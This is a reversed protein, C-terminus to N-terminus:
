IIPQIHALDDAIKIDVHGVTSPEITAVLEWGSGTGRDVSITNNAANVQVHNAKQDNAIGSLLDSLDVVDQGFVYDKITDSNAAGAESFVFTDNGTGGTLTDHGLGGWLIDDGENGTLIDNGGGGILLDNGQGGSLTDALNGGFLVDNGNGGSRTNSAGLEGALFDNGGTSSNNSTGIQYDGTGLNYGKYTAGDFNILEVRDDTAKFHDQVTISQDNFEIVLSGKNNGVVNDYATLSTLEKGAAAIVIRDTGSGENITDHGDTLGFVYTDNGSDDTLLDDGAGGYIKDDGSGAYIKDNGADGYLVDNGSQGYIIDNGAGGLVIDDQSGADIYDDGDEGLIVDDGDEGYILDGGAGGAVFDSQSGGNLYDDGAGGYLADQNQNGEIQNNGANGILVDVGSQGFLAQGGNQGPLIMENDRENGFTTSTANDALATLAVYTFATTGNPATAIVKIIYADADSPSPNGTIVNGNRSLWSWKGNLQNGSTTDEDVRVKEFSYTTGPATGVFLTAMDLTISTPKGAPAANNSFAYFASSNAIGVPGEQIDKVAIAFDSTSIGGHGDSAQVTITHQTTTEYDLVAGAKVTVVGTNQDITFRGNADNTLSYTVTADDVDTSHATLGVVTGATANEAVENLANNTDVPASPADNVPTVTLNVTTVATSIVGDNAKYTFSDPGNYNASPTYTFTGDPNLALTGHAPGSVLIASLISDPDTDNALVGGANATLVQDEAVTYSDALAIPADNVPTVNVIFPQPVPASGDQNGDEVAVSFGANGESGNHVFTIFGSALETATFSTAPTGNNRIEGGNLASVRFVIASATNDPDTFGLAATTLTVVGGEVVTSSLSGALAPADNLPIVKIDVIQAASNDHGDNVIVEVSHGTAAPNDNGNLYTVGRLITQYTAVSATGTVTLVGLASNYTVTLGTAAAQAQPNLSLAEDVGNPRGTFRVTLSNLTSSDVDSLTAANLIYQPLQEVATASANNGADAGNLDVVPADNVPTVDIVFPKPIPVSGDQNGDEVAVSFGALSPESGNHVFTIIGSALEAATFSTAPVGNNRVEGGNLATIRFVVGSPTNDPDTYGLEAVTLTVMGGEVVTSHLTGGLVPADNLPIVKIDVTHSVSNDLGDNVIVEVSHGTVTPDDSNNVYSVGRLITQYTSASAAGTIRLSGLAPDYTVTLGAAAAQAAPNLSLVELTGDPRGVFRVTMSAMQSSDVDSLTAATLIYQPFQEVATASANSGADVGNLDVVPLDNTGILKIEVDHSVNGGHGDSVQITYKIVAQAGASLFNFAESGSNFNWAIDGSTHTGDIVPGAGISFFAKLQADTFNAGLGTATAGTVTASVVDKVDVDIVSLTGDAQLGANTENLVVHDVDGADVSVVPTDNTGVLTVTILRDAFTGHGDSVRVTFTEIKTEGAQLPNLAADSVSYLWTVFGNGDGATEESVNAVLSGLYGANAGPTVSVSHTDGQDDYIWFGGGNYGAHGVPADFETRIAASGANPLGEAYETITGSDPFGISTSVQDNQGNITLQYLGTKSDGDQDTVTYPITITAIEGQSLGDFGWGPNVHLQGTVPDVTITPQGLVTGTPTTIVVTAPNVSVSGPGDAGFSFHAGLNITATGNEDISGSILPLDVAGTPAFGIDALYTGTSDATGVEKFTLVGNGHADPLLGGITVASMTGTVLVSSNQVLQGNWYVELKSSAPDPSGMAFTLTYPQGVTLGSLAQSIATNGPSSGLDVMRGGAPAHMGLYGDQVFELQVNSQAPETGTIKWGVAETAFGGGWGAGTWTGDAFDGNTLLNFDGVPASLTPVDDTVNVTFARDVYDGDGDYVRATLNIALTDSGPAHDLNQYLTAVFSGPHLVGVIFVPQDATEGHKFAVIEQDVGNTARVIYDLAVGDSTLGQPLIYHGQADKAIEVHTNKDDANLDVHLNGFTSSVYPLGGEALTGTDSQGVLEPVTDTVDVTFARDVYDGDGDFVRATLNIALTNSGPAHDLNQFLTAAFNGPHVVAVIFVPRDVGEGQKFAVIEQDGGNTTRVFYELPVGDSSLGQPLIYNGQADKAIEVHTNKDDANIDVNLSGHISSVQPLLSETITGPDAGGALLVPVSDKINVSFTGTATDNDADTAQFGFSLLKDNSGPAHDINDKLVFSYTGDSNLTVTFVDRAGASATLVNGVVTYAIQAGNSTLGNVTGSQTTFVLGDAKAGDAGWHINLSANAPTQPIFTNAFADSTVESVNLQAIPGIEPSDDIVRVVFNGTGQDGDGDRATFNFKLSLVDENNAGSAAIPHDLTGLLKFTYSGSTLLSSQDSLTVSFVPQGGASATIVTGNASLTYVLPQGHSTLAVASNGSTASVLGAVEPATLVRSAGNGSAFVVSRDGMVQTGNYGGNVASNGNDNGWSINLSAGIESGIPGLNAIVGDVEVNLPSADNNGHPLAEEEVYRVGISGVSLHDDLVNVIFSSSATDGDADTAIFGFDLAKTDTGVAHDINGYLRFTYTGTGTDSLSVTFVTEGGASATLVTHDANYSYVVAKGDSTLDVPAVLNGFAVSRNATGSNNDDANWDVNLKGPQVLSQSGDPSLEDLFFPLDQESITETETTGITPVSDIVNVKFTGTAFDGDGDTAQFGFSLEKTNSGPAHDINDKLVFSYTGDSNLTVTFVQRAGASATLVNGAVTYAIQTGNSTLGNVAGSTNTFVLGDTKAGDAGWHINLSVHAPMQTLFTNQVSDSTVEGVNLQAVSGIVPSDDIVRVTFNGTGQDGDGDRATFNFKLSLVDENNAGSAAVPHDLTGLLKFDYSGNSQDSLTVSFVDHGGASATIVTGNASLTYVLPQGHSTLTAAGNGGTASVLSAVEPATLVRAAGSGSAFVVSRDGMVQTGNYGGNVASNFNDNGWSINLSAGIQSGILGGNALVGSLEVGLPSADENGHPLAEEEVYRVGVSGLSLQDDLLNVTFSSSATDGDADTAVFGFSLAKTDTGVAHDINGYLRFTYTGTGTDSLSVTFVTEGGATATLVTHDANYTYVVAKGDSTLDVPAVLSGFNVSRNATGSNNDDANWDVNLKGPQVLSNAGDPFLEHLGFYPLNQEAVTETETTGITPVSDIVNVKFTGTAFDGDGDTAKFGFSLEKTDSGPAHDINDKLVFSYTGDNNLTVTFVQRAGASATLVNGAVTYAISEGNSSLGSVAGSTNTFVLGDTKAGDAGWQINLSVKDPMQALFANQVSDSTLERVDLPAVSGVVPSDDIVRVTFNGVGQDGDGDRATFNFKLSLVDENNAGSAAVPHDLTGLLKFTYSGSSQDSLTVSFVSQGGASATLVTGNASLTYVLPQGHSTLTAPGNGGTASVLGAVEPATLVRAAGNGSTFVVSRDGMVQAGNFGGNVASNFNDNGWSINLSAGIQGSIGLVGSFLNAVVGEVEVGLPSADENGHPLAEEEVYRVGVTGLSLQDDLLNVTFSSSATDGDADTAVFGFDLAKTDTGVAHDINGHLSFTYTGTGTDSLSVTFVTEGGATATLVTHEANYTYVVAKGDSTLDVPAVLNDFAVSRNAAIGSNNDDANWDINLNGPQVLSQSGDPVEHSGFPLNHESVTETETAGITPVSDIVNVKFTGTAFDGDGDTAKFAFSLEKTDSGPAHDINDKLVFSYTGDSNLTVTFVQRDGASATLVNGAVTYAIQAGNSTLGSVAGSGTTFELGDAKAGDAGWHVNLSVKEPMQTLFANQVSDSTVEGVNLQGIPGIEPSDDEVIISIATSASGGRGDTATIPLDFRLENEGAGAPHDVPGSLTVTFAGSGNTVVAQIVLTDGAWGSLTTTGVGTWTLTVGHSTVPSTPQGFSFALPDGNPDSANLNGSYVYDNTTDANGDLDPNGGALGEESLRAETISFAFRPALNNDFSEEDTTETTPLDTGDLLGGYTFASGIDGAPQVEFNGGSSPPGNGAPGAATQIDSAAFLAAVTLPPIEVSGLVITLGEIAGNPVVVVSGDPQVFELNAGNMRPADISTGEPLTLVSGEGVEVVLSAQNQVPAADPPTADTATNAGTDAQAVLIEAIPLSNTDSATDVVFDSNSDSRETM